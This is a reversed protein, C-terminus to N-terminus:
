LPYLESIALHPLHMPCRNLTHLFSVTEMDEGLAGGKWCRKM